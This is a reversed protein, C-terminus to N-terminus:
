PAPRPATSGLLADLAASTKATDYASFREAFQARAARRRTELHETLQGMAVLTDPGVAGHLHHAVGRLQAVHVETDQHEGLNDQLAKLRQVFVKRPGPAYLGGLCELLYRLKKADKRLEHLEEAPTDPGIARGRSLLQAQARGIRDAAVPGIRRSADRGGGDVDPGELWTRWGTVLSRYRASRLAKSLRGHEVTRQEALHDLVPQLAAVADTSLPAVYGDWEIMYVDLDRAPSTATGLWGFAGRYKDRVPVPLVRKGQALVSRTRRVAVRLDHLFEPDLHDVTGQWNADVAVMLNALVRRFADFAREDPQLPVTPSGKFGALDTGLAAAVADMADGDRKHLGLSALLEQARDGDKPYGALPEMEALWAPSAVAGGGVVMREYLGVRVRAKGAHDVRVATRVRATLSLVPMLARVDLVPALRARLPGPPLDTALRPAEDAALHAPAAGGGRLVLEKRAGGRLELRLGASHLRGDFTDLLTRDVTRAPGVEFGAGALADVALRAGVDPSSYSTTDM